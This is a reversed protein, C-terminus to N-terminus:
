GNLVINFTPKECIGKILRLFNGQIRPKILIKIM